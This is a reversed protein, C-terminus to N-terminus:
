VGKPLNWRRRSLPLLDELDLQLELKPIRDKQKLENV